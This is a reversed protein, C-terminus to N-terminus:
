DFYILSLQIPFLGARLEPIFELSPELVGQRFKQLGGKKPEESGFFDVIEQRALEPHTSWFFIPRLMGPSEARRILLMAHPFSRYEELRYVVKDLIAGVTSLRRVPKQTIMVNECAPDEFADPKRKGRSLLEASKGLHFHGPALLAFGIAGPKTYFVIEENEPKSGALSLLAEPMQGLFNRAVSLQDWDFHASIRAGIDPGYTLTARHSHEAVLLSRLGREEPTTIFSPAPSIPTMTNTKGKAKAGCFAVWKKYPISRVSLSMVNM